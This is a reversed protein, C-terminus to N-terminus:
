KKGQREKVIEKISIGNIQVDKLVSQGARVNVLAYTIQSTDRQSENYAKEAELAKSEEMYYRDFPFDIVMKNKSNIYRIKAKIFDLTAPPEEKSVSKIKAFGDKDNTLVVYVEERSMWDNEERIQYTNNKYSLTIYKGRFPDNPDIPRTLFKYETGTKLVNEQDFIMKAPVFLQVFVLLIFGIFIVKKNNM